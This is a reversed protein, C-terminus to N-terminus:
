YPNAYIDFEIQANIEGAFKIFEKTLYIAPTIGANIKLVFMFLLLTDSHQSILMLEEKKKILIPLIKNLQISIDETEEYKTSYKWRNEIYYREVGSQNIYREGKITKGSPEIKMIETIRDPHLGDGSICLYVMANSNKLKEM